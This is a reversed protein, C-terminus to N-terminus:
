FAQAIGHAMADEFYILTGSGGVFVGAEYDGPAIDKLLVDVTATSGFKGTAATVTSATVVTHGAQEFVAKPDVYEQDQFGEPAIIMLIKAM